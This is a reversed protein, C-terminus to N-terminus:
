LYDEVQALRAADPLEGFVILHMVAAFRQQVLSEVGYGRYYLRGADGDVLSVSTTDAIVGELGKHVTTMSSSPSCPNPTTLYAHQVSRYGERPPAM